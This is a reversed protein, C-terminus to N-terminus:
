IPDGELGGIWFTLPKANTGIPATLSAPHVQPKQLVTFFFSVEQRKPQSVGYTVALNVRQQGRFERTDIAAHITVNEGSSLQLPTTVERGNEFRLEVDESSAAIQTITESTSGQNSIDIKGVLEWGPKVRNFNRREAKVSIAEGSHVTRYPGFMLGIFCLIVAVSLGM